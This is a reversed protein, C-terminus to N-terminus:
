LYMVCINCKLRSLADDFFRNQPPPRVPRFRVTTQFGASWALIWKQKLLVFLFHLFILQLWLYRLCKYTDHELFKEFSVSLNLLCVFLNECLELFMKWAIELRTKKSINSLCTQAVTCPESFSSYLQGSLHMYVCVGVDERCRVLLRRFWRIEIRSRSWGAFVWLCIFVEASCQNSRTKREQPNVQNSTNILDM